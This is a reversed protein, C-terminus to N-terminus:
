LQKSYSRPMLFGRSKARDAWLGASVPLFRFKTVQAPNPIAPIRVIRSAKVTAGSNADTDGCTLSAGVEVGKKGVVLVVDCLESKRWDSWGSLRLTGIGALLGVRGRVWAGDGGGLWAIGGTLWGSGM